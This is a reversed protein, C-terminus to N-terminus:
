LPTPLYPQPLLTDPRIDDLCNTPSRVYRWNTSEDSAAIKNGQEDKIFMGSHIQCCVNSLNWLYVFHKGATVHVTATGGSTGVKQDRISRGDENSYMMVPVGDLFLNAYDDGTAGFTYNGDHPFDVEAIAWYQFSVRGTNLYNIDEALPVIGKVPFGAYSNLTSPYQYGGSFNNVVRAPATVDGLNQFAIVPELYSGERKVAELRYGSPFTAVSTDGLSYRVQQGERLYELHVETGASHFLAKKIDGGTAALYTIYHGSKPATFVNAASHSISQYLYPTVECGVVFNNKNVAALTGAMTNCCCSM